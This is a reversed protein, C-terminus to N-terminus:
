NLRGGNLINAMRLADHEKPRFSGLVKEAETEIEALVRDTHEAAVSEVAILLLPAQVKSM